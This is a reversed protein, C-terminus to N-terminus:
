QEMQVNADEVVKRGKETVKVEDFIEDESPPLIAVLGENILERLTALHGMEIFPYTNYSGGENVLYRLWDIKSPRNSTM